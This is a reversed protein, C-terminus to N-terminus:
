WVLGHVTVHRRLLGDLNLRELFHNLLPLSGVKFSRLTVGGNRATTGIRTSTGARAETRGRSASGKKKRAARRRSSNKM